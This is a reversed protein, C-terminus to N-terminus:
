YDEMGSVLEKYMRILRTTTPFFDYFKKLVYLGLSTKLPISLGSILMRIIFLIKSNGFAPIFNHVSSLCQRNILDITGGIVSRGEYPNVTSVSTIQNRFNVSGPSSYFKSRTNAIVPFYKAFKKLFVSSFSTCHTITKWAAVVLLTKVLSEYTSRRKVRTYLDFWRPKDQLKEEVYDMSSEFSLQRIYSVRYNYLAKDRDTTETSCMVQKRNVLDTIHTLLIQRERTTYNREKLLSTLWQKAKVTMGDYVSTPCHKFMSQVDEMPFELPYFYEEEGFEEIVAIRLMDDYNQSRYSNEMKVIEQAKIFDWKPTLSMPRSNETTPSYMKKDGKLLYQRFYKKTPTIYSIGKDGSLKIYEDLDINYLYEYRVTEGRHRFQGRTSTLDPIDLIVEKNNSVWERLRRDPYELSTWDMYLTVPEFDETSGTHRLPAIVASWYANEEPNEYGLSAITKVPEEENDLEVMNEQDGPEEQLDCRDEPEQLDCRDSQSGDSEEFSLWWNQFSETFGASDEEV